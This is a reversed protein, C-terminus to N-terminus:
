ALNYMNEAFFQQSILEWLQGSKAIKKLKGMTCHKEITRLVSLKTLPFLTCWIKSLKHWALLRDCSDFMFYTTTKIHRPTTYVTLEKNRQLLMGEKNMM